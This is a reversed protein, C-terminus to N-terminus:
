QNEQLLDKMELIDLFNTATPIFSAQQLIKNRWASFKIKWANNNEGLFFYDFYDSPKIDANMSSVMQLFRSSIRTQEGNPATVVIYNNDASTILSEDLIVRGQADRIPPAAMNPNISHNNNLGARRITGSSAFLYNDNDPISLSTYLNQTPPRSIRKTSIREPLNNSAVVPPVIPVTNTVAPQENTAPVPKEEQVITNKPTTGTTFFYWAAVALLTTVAAAVAVKRFPFIVPPRLGTLITDWANPPPTAEWNTLTEGIVTEHPDYEEELRATITQWNEQPPAIELNLLIHQLKSSM